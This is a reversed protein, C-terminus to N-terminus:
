AATPESRGKERREERQESQDSAFALGELTMVVDELEDVLWAQGNEPRLIIGTVDASTHHLILRELELRDPHASSPLAMKLLSEIAASPLVAQPVDPMCWVDAQHTDPARARVFGAERIESPPPFILGTWRLRAGTDDLFEGLGSDRLNARASLVRPAPVPEQPLTAGFRLQCAAVPHSDEQGTIIVKVVWADAQWAGTLRVEFTCPGDPLILKPLSVELGRLEQLHVESWQGPTIWRANSIALELLVSIPLASRGDVTFDRCAPLSAPDVTWRTKMGVFPLYEKVDGLFFGLSRLREMGPVECAPHFGRLHIPSLASGVPGMFTAEGQAGALLERRWHEVGQDVALPAMYKLTAQFNTIMGLQEWTPWVVVNVPAALTKGAWLALRALAENGAAYDTEGVMGGLRGTLSGVASLFKLDHGRSAELLNFFGDV